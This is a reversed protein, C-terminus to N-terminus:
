TIVTIDCVKKSGNLKIDTGFKMIMSAIVLFYHHPGEHGGGEGMVSPECFAWTLDRTLFGMDFLTLPSSLKKKSLNSLGSSCINWM